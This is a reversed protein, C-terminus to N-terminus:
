GLLVVEYEVQYHPLSCKSIKTCPNPELSIKSVSLEVPKVASWQFFMILVPVSPLRVVFPTALITAM